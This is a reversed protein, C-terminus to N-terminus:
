SRVVSRLDSGEGTLKALRGGRHTLPLAFLQKRYERLRQLTGREDRGMLAPTHTGGCGAHLCLRDDIGTLFAMLANM